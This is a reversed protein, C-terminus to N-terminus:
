KKKPAKVAPDEPKELVDRYAALVAFYFSVLQNMNDLSKAGNVNFKGTSYIIVTPGKKAGPEVPPENVSVKLQGEQKYDAAKGYHTALISRLLKLRIRYGGNLNNNILATEEKLVAPMPLAPDVRQLLSRMFESVVRAHEYSKIGTLHLMYRQKAPDTEGNKFQFLRVTCRAAPAGPPERWVEFTDYRAFGMPKKGPESKAPTKRGAFRCHGQTTGVLAEDSLAPIVKELEIPVDIYHIVTMMSIHQREPPIVQLDLDRKEPLEPGADQSLKLVYKDFDAAFTRFDLAAM